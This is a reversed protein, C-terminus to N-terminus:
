FEAGEPFIDPRLYPLVTELRPPGNQYLSATLLITRPAQIGTVAQSRLSADKDIKHAEDVVLCDLQFLFARFPAPREEKLGVLTEYGIVVVKAPGVGARLKALREAKQEDGIVLVEEDRLTTHKLLEEKVVSRNAANTVWLTKRLGLTMIAAAAQYTKGLGVEDALIARENRVLFDIGERQFRFPETRMGSVTLEDLRRFYGETAAYIEDVTERAHIGASGVAAEHEKALKEYFPEGSSYWESRSLIVLSHVAESVSFSARSQLAPLNAVLAERGALSGRAPGSAEQRVASRGLFYKLTFEEVSVGRFADARLLGLMSVLLSPNEGFAELIPQLDHKKIFRELNRDSVAPNPRDVSGHGVRPARAGSEGDPATHSGGTTAASSALAARLADPTAACGFVNSCRVLEHHGLPLLEEEGVLRAKLVTRLNESARQRGVVSPTLYLSDLPVGSPDVEDPLEPSLVNLSLLLSAVEARSTDHRLVYHRRLAPPFDKAEPLSDLGVGERENVFLRLEAVFAEPGGKEPPGKFRDFDFNDAGSLEPFLVGSMADFLDPEFGSRLGLAALLHSSPIEDGQGEAIARRVNWAAWYEGM